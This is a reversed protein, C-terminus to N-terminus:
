YVEVIKLEPYKDLDTNWLFSITSHNTNLQKVLNELDDLKAPIVTGYKISRKLLQRRYSNETMFVTNQLFIEKIIDSSINILPTIRQENKTVPIGLFLKRVELQSLETLPSHQSAVLVMEPEAIALIPFLLACILFFRSITSKMPIGCEM